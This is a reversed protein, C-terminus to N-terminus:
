AERAGGRAFFRRAFLWGPLAVTVVYAAVTAWVLGAVGLPRALAVSLGLKALALASGSLALFRLAGVGNLFASLAGGGALLATWCALAVLLDLGVTVRDGVWLTLLSPGAAVLGAAPVGAGVVSLLASRRLVRRVWPLDRGALAEAYAPWLPTTAVNLGVLLVLFLRSAVAHQAVAAPGLLRSALASDMSFAVVASAQVVMYLAGARLLRAVVPRRVDAWGPRLDPRWARLSWATNAAATVAPIGATALVLAPLGLGTRVALLLAALGLLAGLAGFAEGLYGAQLGSQARAMVGAPLSLAVCAVFALAAGGAEGAVGPPLALLRDWALHPAAALFSVLLVAGLGATVALGGALLRRIGDVDGRGDHEAVATVLGSGVGLDLTSGLAFVSSLAMWLAYREPGLHGLTLPVSVLLSAM